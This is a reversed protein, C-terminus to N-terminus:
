NKGRPHHSELIEKVKSQDIHLYVETTTISEHGMMQQIAMLDAGSALLHSAFSHRFTHPSITKNLNIKIGLNKVITFIMVRTLKAGRRNLFVHDAYAPKIPLQNREIEIYDEICNITYPAIPIIRDKNGKGQVRIIEQEFSLNSFRLEVLESVRLGCGYLTELIARNRYAQESSYDIADILQDIEDTSLTDPIKRSYKPSEISECPNSEITNNLILYKYFQRISSLKRAQTKPDLVKAIEYLYTTIQSKDLYIPDSDMYFEALQNVDKSYALMSHKSLGLELNLYNEFSKLHKSWKM